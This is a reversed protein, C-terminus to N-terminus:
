SARLYGRNSLATLVDRKVANMINFVAEYLPHYRDESVGDRFSGHAIGNRYNLLWHIQGEIAAFQDHDMGLRFLLKRLVIPKLNDEVDVIHDPISVIRSEIEHTREIFERDRAFRHLKEDDPLENRFEDCKKLPNRLAEFMDTLSAAAIAYTADGCTIRASNVERVYLGLSFKCFGEFHAYLMMVLARRFRDKEAESPLSEAMNQLARLESERWEQEAEIEAWVASIEM